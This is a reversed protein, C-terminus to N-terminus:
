KNLTKSTTPLSIYYFDNDKYASSTDNRVGITVVSISKEVVSMQKLWNANVTAGLWSSGKLSSMATNRTCNRRPSRTEKLTVSRKTGDVASVVVVVVVVVPDLNSTKDAAEAYITRPM